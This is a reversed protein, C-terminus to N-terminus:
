ILIKMLMIVWSTRWLGGNPFLKKYKLPVRYPLYQNSNRKKLLPVIVIQMTRHTIQSRNNWNRLTVRMMQLFNSFPSKRSNVLFPSKVSVAMTRALSKMRLLYGAVWAEVALPTTQLAREKQPAMSLSSCCSQGLQHLKPNNTEPFGRSRFTWELVPACAIM